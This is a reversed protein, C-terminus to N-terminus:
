FSCCLSFLIELFHGSTEVMNLAVSTHFTICLSLFFDMPNLGCFVSTVESASPDISFDSTTLSFTALDNPLSNFIISLSLSPLWFTDPRTKWSPPLQPINLHQHSPSLPFPLSAASPRSLSLLCLALHRLLHSPLHDVCLCLAEGQGRKLDAVIDQTLMKFLLHSGMSFEKWGEKERLVTDVGFRGLSIKWWIWNELKRVVNLKKYNGLSAQRKKVRLRHWDREWSDDEELEESSSSRNM